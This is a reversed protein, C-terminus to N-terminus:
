VSKEISVQCLLSKPLLTYSLYIAVCPMNQLKVNHHFFPTLCSAFRWVFISSVESLPHMQKLQQVPNPAAKSLLPICFTGMHAQYQFTGYGQLAENLWKSISTDPKCRLM